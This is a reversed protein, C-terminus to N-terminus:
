RRYVFNFIGDMIIVGSGLGTLAETESALGGYIAITGGVLGILSVIDFGIRTEKDERDLREVESETTKELNPKYEVM